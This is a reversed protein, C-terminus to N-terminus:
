SRTVAVVQIPLGGTINRVTMTITAGNAATWQCFVSGAAPDCKGFTYPTQASYPQAFM